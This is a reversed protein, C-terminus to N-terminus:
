EEEEENEKEEEEEEEQEREEEEGEEERPQKSGTHQPQSQSMEKSEESSEQNSSQAQPTHPCLPRPGSCSSTVSQNFHSAAMCKATSLDCVCQLRDCVSVGSSEGKAASTFM